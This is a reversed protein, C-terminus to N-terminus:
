AFAAQLARGAEAQAERTGDIAPPMSFFAHIMGPYKSYAVEVGAGRLTEGYAVGDDLLVDCEAAIILAPALGAHSAAKIPSARWDAMQKPDAFYHRQFYYMLEDTLPGYGQAFTQYSAGSCAYDAIPYVLLQLRLAPKDADRALLAVVAALNGGASDGGVAIRDPDLGYEPGNELAWLAAAWCDEVAAPFPHEPAKRYNVALVACEGGNALARAVGDHTDLSGIVHGGGHYYVLVPLPGEATRLPRYLRAPLGGGPGPVVLREIGGVPEPELGRAEVLDEMQRRAAEPSLTEMAPLGLKAMAELAELIQPHLRM